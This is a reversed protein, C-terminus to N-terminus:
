ASHPLVNDVCASTVLLQWAKVLKTVNSSRWFSKSLLVIM